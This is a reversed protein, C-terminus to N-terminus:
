ASRGVRLAVFSVLIGVGLFVGPLLLPWSDAWQIRHPRAPDVRIPPPGERPIAALLREMTARDSSTGRRDIASLFARGDREYALYLRGVYRTVSRGRLGRDSRAYVETKDVRPTLVPWALTAVAAPATAISAAVFALGIAGVFLAVARREARKAAAARQPDGERSRRDLGALHFALAGVAGFFAGGGLLLLSLGFTQLNPGAELRARSPHDPDYRVPAESGPPFREVAESVWPYHVSLYAHAPETEVTQDGASYRVRIRAALRGGSGEVRSETVRGLAEPWRSIVILRDGALFLGVAFLALGIGTFVYGPARAM